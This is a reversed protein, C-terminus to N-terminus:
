DDDPSWDGFDPELRVNGDDYPDYDDEPDEPFDGLIFAKDADRRSKVTFLRSLQSFYRVLSKLVHEERIEGGLAIHRRISENRMIATLSGLWHKTVKTEEASVGLNYRAFDWEVASKLSIKLAEIGQGAFEQNTSKHYAKYQDRSADYSFTFQPLASMLEEVTTATMVPDNYKSNDRVLECEDPRFMLGTKADDDMTVYGLLKGHGDSTTIVDIIIRKEEVLFGRSEVHNYISVERKSEDDGDFVGRTFNSM